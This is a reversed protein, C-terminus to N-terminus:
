EFFISFNPGEGTLIVFLSMERPFSTSTAGSVQRAVDTLSGVLDFLVALGDAV